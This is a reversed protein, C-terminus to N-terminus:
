ATLSPRIVEVVDNRAGSVKRTDPM